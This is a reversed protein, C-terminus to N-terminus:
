RYEAKTRFEYQSKQIVMMGMEMKMKAQITTIKSNKITDSKRKRNRVSISKEECWNRKYLKM